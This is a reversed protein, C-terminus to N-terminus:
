TRTAWSTCSSAWWARAQARTWSIRADKPVLRALTEASKQPGLWGFDSDLDQDYSAAWQDYRESLETNDKSSYIWQILNQEQSM